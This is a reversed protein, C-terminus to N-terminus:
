LYRVVYPGVFAILLGAVVATSVVGVKWKGIVILHVSSGVSAGVVAVVVFAMKSYFLFKSTHEIGNILLITRFLGDFCFGWVLLLLDSGILAGFILRWDEFLVHVSCVLVFM